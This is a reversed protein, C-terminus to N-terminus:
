GKIVKKHEKNKKSSICVVFVSVFWIGTFMVVFISIISRVVGGKRSNIKKM